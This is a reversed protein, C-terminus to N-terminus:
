CREEITKEIASKEVQSLSLQYKSIVSLFSNVYLCQFEQNPPLYSAPGKDGKSRNESADSIFLNAPDNAFATKKDADWDNGGNAAAWSLPVVHDIDMASSDTFTKGVYNEVWTGSLVKCTKPDTKVDTGEAVLIQERTDCGDGDLDLWHKWESRNYKVDKPPAVTLQDLSTLTVEKADPTLSVKGKNSGDGIINPILCGHANVINQANPNDAALEGDVCKDMNASKSQFWGIADGISQFGNHNWWGLVSAAVILIMAGAALIGKFGGGGGGRRAPTRRRNAM